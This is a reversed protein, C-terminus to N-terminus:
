GLVFDRGTLADTQIRWRGAFFGVLPSISKGTPGIFLFDREGAVFKPSDSVELTTDGVTGGIFELDLRSQQSGKLTDVVRVTVLTVIVREDGRDRWESRVNLVEGRVIATAENVLQDFSIPLVTAASLPLAGGIVLALLLPMRVLM